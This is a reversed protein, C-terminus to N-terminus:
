LRGSDHRRRPSDIGAAAKITTTAHFFPGVDREETTMPALEESAFAQPSGGGMGRLEANSADPPDIGYRSRPRGDARGSGIRDFNNPATRRVTSDSARLKLFRRSM